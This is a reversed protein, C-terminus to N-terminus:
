MRSEIQGNALRVEPRSRPDNLMQLHSRLPADQCPLISRKLRKRIIRHCSGVLQVARVPSLALPFSATMQRPRWHQSTSCFAFSCTKPPPRISIPRLTEDWRSARTHITNKERSSFDRATNEERSSAEEPDRQKNDLKGPLCAPSNRQHTNVTQQVSM